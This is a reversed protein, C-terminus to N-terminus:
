NERKRNEDDGSKKLCSFAVYAVVYVLVCFLIELILNSQRLRIVLLTESNALLGDLTSVFRRGLYPVSACVLSGGALFVGKAFRSTELNSAVMASICIPVFVALMKFESFSTWIVEISAYVIISLILFLIFLRSIYTRKDSITM